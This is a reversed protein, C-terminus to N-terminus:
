RLSRWADRTRDRACGRDHADRLRSVLHRRGQWLDQATARVVVLNLGEFREERINDATHHNLDRHQSGDYEGTVGAEDDLLDPVGVFLGDTDELPANVRPRPLGALVTWVYRFRSEPPSAARGDVLAAVVRGHPIGRVPGVRAVRERLLDATTMGAAVAADAAVLGEEVGYRCAIALCAATPTSVHLGNHDLVDEPEVRGRDVHVLATPRTRGRPGVHVLVPQLRAAGPGTRGDLVTVGQHHLAAWGGIVTGEPQSAALVATRTAPDSRDLGHWGRLGHALPQWLPGELERRTLGLSKAASRSLPGSVASDPLPQLRRPEM